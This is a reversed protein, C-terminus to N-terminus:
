AMYEKLVEEIVQQEERTFRIEEPQLMTDLQKREKEFYEKQYEQMEEQHFFENELRPQCVNELYDMIEVKVRQRCEELNLVLEQMYLLFCPFLTTCFVLMGSWEKGGPWQVYTKSWILYANIGICGLVTTAFLVEGWTEWAALSIGARKYARLYKEVYIDVNKIEMKLEYSTQFRKMLTKLLPHSSKGMNEAEKGIKRFNAFLVWRVVFCLGAAGIMVCILYSM